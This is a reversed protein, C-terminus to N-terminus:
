SLKFPNFNTNTDFYDIQESKKLYNTIAYTVPTFIIECGVKILYNSIIIAILLEPEFIGAFAVLCFITSDLAQGVLTSGITRLWLLKGKTKVKLKALLYSNAFEGILYAILSALAIRPTVGLITQYANQNQWDSAAPLLGVIYITLTSLLLLSFGTWIVRRAKNFGYVETLIDGFIYALPFLITGADFTLGWFAVIKTSVINSIILVAVFTATIFNLHKM